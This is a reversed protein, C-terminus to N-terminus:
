RIGYRGLLNELQRRFAAEDGDNRVLTDCHAAYFAENPQASLRAQAADTDIGDRTCIRQLCLDKPATVGITLTCDRDIGSEFLLPVDLVVLTGDYARTQQQMAQRVAGHTLANLDARAADDAFVIQGLKKRDLVGNKVTGPFLSDIASLM